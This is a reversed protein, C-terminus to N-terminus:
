RFQVKIRASMREREEIFLPNVVEVRKMSISLVLLDVMIGPDGPALDEENV